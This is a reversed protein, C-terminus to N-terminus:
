SCMFRGTVQCFFNNDGTLWIMQTRSLAGREGTLRITEPNRRPAFTESPHAGSLQAPSVHGETHLSPQLSHETVTSCQLCALSVKHFLMHGEGAHGRASRSPHDIQDLETNSPQSKIGYHEPTKNCNLSGGGGCMKRRPSRIKDVLAHHFIKHTKWVRRWTIVEFATYYLWQDRWLSRPPPIEPGDREPSLLSSNNRRTQTHFEFSIHFYTRTYATTKQTSGAKINWTFVHHKAVRFGPPEPGFSM